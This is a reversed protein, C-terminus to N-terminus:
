KDSEELLAALYKALAIQEARTVETFHEAVLHQAFKHLAKVGYGCHRCRYRCIVAGQLVVQLADQAETIQQVAM